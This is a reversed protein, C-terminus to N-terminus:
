FPADRKSVGRAMEHINPCIHFWNFRKPRGVDDCIVIGEISLTVLESPFVDEVRMEHSGYKQHFYRAVKDHPPYEGDPNYWFVVMGLEPLDKNFM